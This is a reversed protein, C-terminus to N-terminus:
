KREFERVFHPFAPEGLQPAFEFGEYYSLRWSRPIPWGITLVFRVLGACSKEGLGGAVKMSGDKQRVYFLPQVVKVM